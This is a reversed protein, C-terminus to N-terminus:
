FKLPLFYNKSFDPFSISHFINSPINVLQTARLSDAAAVKIFGLNILVAVVVVLLPAPIIKWRKAFNQQM